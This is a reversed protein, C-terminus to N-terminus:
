SANPVERGFRCTFHRADEDVAFFFLAMVVVRLAVTQLYRISSLEHLVDYFDISGLRVMCHLRALAPCHGIHIHAVEHAALLLLGRGAVGDDVDVNAVFGAARIQM